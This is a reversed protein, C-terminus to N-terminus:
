SIQCIEGLVGRGSFALYGSYKQIEHGHFRGSELWSIQCIEGLVGRGSFVLYATYKMHFGASKM